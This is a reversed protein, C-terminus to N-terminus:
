ENGYRYRKFEDNIKGYERQLFSKDYQVSENSKNSKMHKSIKYFYNFLADLKESPTKEEIKYSTSNYTYPTSQEGQDDKKNFYVELENTKNNIYCEKINNIIKNNKRKYLIKYSLLDIKTLNDKDDGM